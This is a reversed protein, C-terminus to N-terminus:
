YVEDSQTEKVLYLRCVLIEDSLNLRDSEWYFPILGPLKETRRM